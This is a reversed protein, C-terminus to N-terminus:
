PMYMIVLATPLKERLERLHPYFVLIEDAKEPERGILKSVIKTEIKGIVKWQGQEYSTDTVLLLPVKVRDIEWPDILSGIVDLEARAITYHTGDKGVYSPEKMEMMEALTARKAPVHSNMSSLMSQVARESFM